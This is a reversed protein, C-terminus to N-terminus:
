HARGIKIKVKDNNAVQDILCNYYALTNEKSRVSRPKALVPTSKAKTIKKKVPKSQSSLNMTKKVTKKVTKIKKLQSMNKLEKKGSKELRAQHLKRSEKFKLACAECFQENQELRGSNWTFHYPGKDEGEEFRKQCNSCAFNFPAFGSELRFKATLDPHAKYFHSTITSL